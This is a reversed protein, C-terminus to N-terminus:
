SFFVARFTMGLACSLMSSLDRAKSTLAVEGRWERAQGFDVMTV